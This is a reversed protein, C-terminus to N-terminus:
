DRKKGLTNVIVTSIAVAILIDSLWDIASGLHMAIIPDFGLRERIQFVMLAHDLEGLLFAAILLIVLFLWRNM